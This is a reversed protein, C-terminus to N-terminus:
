ESQAHLYQPILLRRSRVSPVFRSGTWYLRQRSYHREMRGGLTKNTTTGLILCTNHWFSICVKVTLIRQLQETNM